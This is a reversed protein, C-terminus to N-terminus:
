FKYGGGLHYIVVPDIKANKDTENIPNQAIQGNPRTFGESKRQTIDYRNITAKLTLFFGSNATLNFGGGIRANLLDDVVRLKYAENTPTLDYSYNLRNYAYAKGIGAEVFTELTMYSMTEMFPNKAKFDFMWGLSQAADVGYIQGTQKTYSYKVDSDFTGGNLVRSFLTGMYFGEVMSRTVFGGGLYIEGGFGLRAGWLEKDNEKFSKRGDFKFVTPYKMNEFGFTSVWRSKRQYFDDKPKVEADTVFEPNSIATPKVPAVFEETTEPVAEQEEAYVSFSSLILLGLFLKNM